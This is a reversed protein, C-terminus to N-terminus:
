KPGGGESIINSCKKALSLLKEKTTEPATENMNETMVSAAKEHPSNYRRSETRKFRRLMELQQETFKAM